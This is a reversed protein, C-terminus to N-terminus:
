MLLCILIHLWASHQLLQVINQILEDDFLCDKEGGGGKVMNLASIYAGWEERAIELSRPLVRRAACHRAIAKAAAALCEATAQDVPARVGAASTAVAELWCASAKEVLRARIPVRLFDKAPLGAGAGSADDSALVPHEGSAARGLAAHWAEQWALWRLAEAVPFPLRSIQLKASHAQRTCDLSNAQSPQKTQAQSALHAPTTNGPTCGQKSLPEKSPSNSPDARAAPLHRWDMDWVPDESDETRASQTRSHPGMNPTGPGSISFVRASSTASTSRVVGPTNPMPEAVLTDEELEPDDELQLLALDAHLRVLVAHAEQASLEMSLPKQALEQLAEVDGESGRKLLEQSLSWARVHWRPEVTRSSATKDADAAHSSALAAELRLEHCQAVAESIRKLICAETGSRPTFIEFCKLGNLPAAVEM